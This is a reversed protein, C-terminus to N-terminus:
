WIYLPDFTSKGIGSSPSSSPTLRILLAPPAFTGIVGSSVEVFAYLLAQANPLSESGRTCDRNKGSGDSIFPVTYLIGIQRLRFFNGSQLGAYGQARPILFVLRTPAQTRSHKRAQINPHKSTTHKPEIRISFKRIERTEEAAVGDANCDSRVPDEGDAQPQRHCRRLMWAAFASIKRTM